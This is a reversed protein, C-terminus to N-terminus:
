KGNKGGAYDKKCWEFTRKLGEDLSVTESYGTLRILKKISPCRREVSGKPAEKIEIRPSVNAVKFLREALEKITIENTENGINIIEGKTSESEMILRTARVGDGVYIFSRTEKGGFIPFPDTNDLIRKCFEPIVHEYGMREGYINHFRVIRVNLSYVKGYNLFLLEGAIKSGGYSYRPNQVDDICLPVDEGTPIEWGFKQITGSYAESSSSFLLDKCKTEKVWDLLNIVSVINVRLVTEPIEYFYRTGNIAALHYIRDYDMELKEFEAKETMDLNVYKSGTKELFATVEGDLKGRFQNDCITVKDGKEALHKALHFGIFGLGGTILAKSLELGGM